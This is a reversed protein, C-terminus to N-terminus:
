PLIVSSIQPNALAAGIGIAVMGVVTAAFRADSGGALAAAFRLLDGIAIQSFAIAFFRKWRHM